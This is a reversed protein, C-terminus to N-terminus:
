GLGLHHIVMLIFLSVVLPIFGIFFVVKGFTLAGRWGTAKGIPGGIFICVLGAIGIPWGIHAVAWLIGILQKV